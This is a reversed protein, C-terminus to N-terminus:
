PVLLCSAEGTGFLLRSHCDGAACFIGWLGREMLEKFVYDYHDIYGDDFTLWCDNEKFTQNNKVINHIEYPNLINYKNDLYKIQSKFKNIDLGNLGKNKPLNLDRVYHYM